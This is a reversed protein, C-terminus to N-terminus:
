FFDEEKFISTYSIGRETLRNVGNSRDLISVVFIKDGPIEEVKVLHKIVELTSSGTTIVDEILVIPSKGDYDGEIYSSKGSGYGIKLKDRILLLPIVGGSAISAGTAYPIGGLPIGAIYYKRLGFSEAAVFLESCIDSFIFSHSIAKRFDFYYKSKKGSKLTYFKDQELIIGPILYLKDLLAIRDNM